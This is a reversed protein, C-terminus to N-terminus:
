TQYEPPATGPSAGARTPHQRPPVRSGDGSVWWGDSDYTGFPDSHYEQWWGSMAASHTACCAPPSSDSHALVAVSSVQSKKNHNNQNHRHHLTSTISSVIDACMQQPYPEAIKTWFQKTIPDKGMLGLHKVGSFSCVHRGHCTPLVDDLGTHNWVLIRTSKRWPM